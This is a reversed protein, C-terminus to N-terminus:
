DLGASGRRFDVPVAAVLHTTTKDVTMCKKETRGQGTEVRASKRSFSLITARLAQSAESREQLFVAVPLDICRVSRMM